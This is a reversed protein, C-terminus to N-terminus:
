ADTSGGLYARLEAPTAVLADADRLEDASGIGWLVGVVPIGNARAGAVDFRTDGVMTADGTGLARLAEAIVEAKPVDRELPPGCVAAFCSRLGVADLLPEALARPKSTAVALPRGALARLLEPIGGFVPTEAPARRAYLARYDAVCREAREPGALRAWTEHLPPGILAHIEEDPLEPLDHARLTANTCSAIPARSDVLVGDLDFLVASM